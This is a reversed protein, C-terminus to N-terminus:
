KKEMEEIIKELEEKRKTLEKVKKQILEDRNEKKSM